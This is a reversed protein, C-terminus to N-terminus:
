ELSSDLRQCKGYSFCLKESTREWSLLKPVFLRLVSVRRENQASVPQSRPLLNWLFGDRVYGPANRPSFRTQWHSSRGVLEAPSASLDFRRWSSYRNRRGGAGHPRRAPWGTASANPRPASPSGEAATDEAGIALGRFIPKTERPRGSVI